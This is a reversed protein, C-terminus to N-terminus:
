KFNVTASMMYRRGLADIVFPGQFAKDTLNTVALNFRVNDSAKYGVNADVTTVSEKRLFDRTEVTNTNSVNASSLYNIDTGFRWKGIDYRANWQYQRKEFGITDIQNTAPIGVAAASEFTKPFYGYFGLVLKGYSDFDLDYAVEATWGRFNTYPGNAFTTAMGDAVATDPNRSILSCFRNANNVDATNFEDNDFCGSVIDAATLAVISDTLKIDYWDAAIRLGEIFKPKFVIGATWSNATENKLDESGTLSGLVSANLAQFTNRDVGPYAAFFANCNRQRVDPRPGSNINAAQCPEPITFFAPQDSYLEAIAPNRFSKTKNGRIQLGEFPEYQIGYTYATFWGNVTNDVRRVKGIVDFRHLGPIGADENVLPAVFEAFYENTHYDGSMGQIPVSRGLGLRQYESPTFSGEEKRYEYGANVKFEGGPLDFLGITANANFVTQAVDAETRTPTVVYALAERSMRGEGFLNLPVCGPAGSACVINGAADRTVNIANRFNEELLGTGLYGFEGEGRVLSVEWDVARNGIDFYGNAGVVGRWIKTKSSSNNTSLDRSSRSLRFNTVGLAQLTARDAPDLFPNDINFTLPASSGSFSAANYVNQDILEKAQASYWSLEWFARVSENFDFHGIAMASKRTVDSMIPVTENLNVGDGGSSNNNGFTTGPDYVALRGNNDFHYHVNNNPGFGSLQGTSDRYFGGAAPFLLGGWTMVNIRRNRIFITGPIGDTGSTNFAINTHVRGDTAYDRGPQFRAIAAANPNVQLSYAQRYFDRDMALVGDSQDYSASIMFNGRDDAFNTGFLTSFNQRANDGHDTIGYGFTTEVGEFDDRLIFNAVGSIADTGYTPAGGVGIYEVRDVMNTPIVNLDVQLGPSSPGFITAPNSTVFRRGNVLTLLRNPGLGFRGAFSVGTGFSAQAGATTAGINFGPQQFVADAVNTLGNDTVFDNTIVSAPELTDFGVRPPIRSGTVRIRDLTKTNDVQTVESQSPDQASSNQQTTTTPEETNQAFAYNSLALVMFIGAALRHRTIM